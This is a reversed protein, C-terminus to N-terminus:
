RLVEPVDKVFQLFMRQIGKANPHIGDLFLSKDQSTNLYNVSTAIDFAAGNIGLNKRVTAIIENNKVVSGTFKWPINNLIPIVGLKQISSCLATLNDVTNFDNTGILISVYKPKLIAVESLVRNQVGAARGGSRGSIAIRFHKAIAAKEYDANLSDPAMHLGETISDGIFLLHMGPKYSTSVKFSSVVPPEGGETAIAFGDRMLGSTKDGADITTDSLGTFNDIIIFKNIFNERMMEITYKRGAVFPYPHNIHVAPYAASDSHYPGFIKFSGSAADAQVMTGWIPTNEIELAFFNFKTDKGLKVTISAKRKDIGYERNLMLYNKLGTSTSKIGDKTKKWGGPNNFDAPIGKTFGTEYLITKYESGASNFSHHIPGGKLKGTDIAPLVRDMSLAHQILSMLFLIFSCIKMDSIIGPKSLTLLM